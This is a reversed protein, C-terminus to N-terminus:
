SSKYTLPIVYVANKAEKVKWWRALKHEQGVGVILKSGDLSFVISNIFGAIPIEMVPEISRFGEKLRWLRLFGDHSGSAVLDSNLLAAVCTIWRAQGDESGHAKNVTCLAKKKMNGWVCISGDDSCSIFNEENILRVCDISGSHGNFILQSEEVIKWIRISNDRGGATIARERSLADISTIASQHGFVTEIYAMEDLSWVKVSRDKSASFLQHTDKRFVLDTVHDRHGRFTHLHKLTAADWVQIDNANECSVLYKNDTSIALAAIPSSHCEFKSNKKSDKNYLISNVKKMDTLSWHIIASCKTGSYLHQGDSSICMCTVPLRLDKGRLIRIDLPAPIGLQAAKASRLRGQQLLLDDRLRAGVQGDDPEGNRAREEREVESLYLRALRLKKEQATELEGESDSRDPFDRAELDSDLSEEGDDDQPQPQRPKKSKKSKAEFKRKPAKRPKAKQFFSM